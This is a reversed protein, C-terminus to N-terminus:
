LVGEDGLSRFKEESTQSGLYPTNDIKWDGTHVVLGHTTRIAMANSEPISHAVPVFEIDFPGMQLRHGPVIENLTIKPAGPESLRRTELLGIAFRTAYVPARLRPWMEVLAGIHDEHAHTILIGLLNRREDELFRLDPFMLDVGPMHEESAFGVGCDVLVWQRRDEPGFGYLAANMGIEGLGGLPVFVLEDQSSAM